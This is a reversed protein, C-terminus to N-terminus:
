GAGGRNKLSSDFVGLNQEVLEVFEVALRWWGLGLHEFAGTQDHGEGGPFGVDFVADIFGELGAKLLKGATREGFKDLGLEPFVDRSQM